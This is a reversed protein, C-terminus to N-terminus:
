WNGGDQGAVHFTVRSANQTLYFMRRQAEGPLEAAIHPLVVYTENEEKLEIAM